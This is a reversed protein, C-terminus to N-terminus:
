MELKFSVMPFYKSEGKTDGPNCVDVTKSFQKLASNSEM